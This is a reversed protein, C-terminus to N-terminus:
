WILPKVLSILAASDKLYSDLKAVYKQLHFDIYESSTLSGLGAIIPRGPPNTTSKHVKPLHYYIPMVPNHPTLFELKNKDLINNDIKILANYDTLNEKSPDTTIVNYYKTDYLINHAELIDDDINQIVISGGKDANRIIINDNNM